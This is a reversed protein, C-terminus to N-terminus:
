NSFTRAHQAIIQNDPLHKALELVCQEVSRAIFAIAGIESMQELFVRQEPRVVGKPSKVEIFLARAVCKSVGNDDYYYPIAGIIDSVGKRKHPNRNKRFAKRAPDYIGTSDNKWANIGIAKLMDLIAREIDKELFNKM